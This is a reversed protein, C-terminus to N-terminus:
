RAPRVPVAPWAHDVPADARPTDRSPNRKRRPRPPPGGNPKRSTRRADPPTQHAVVTPRHLDRVHRALRPIQGEVELDPYSGHSM